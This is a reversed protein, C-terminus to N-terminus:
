IRVYLRSQSPIESLNRKLIAVIEESTSSKPFKVKKTPLSGTSAEIERAAALGIYCFVRSPHNGGRGRRQSSTSPSSSFINFLDQMNSTSDGPTDQTATDEIPDIDDTNSTPPPVPPHEARLSRLTDNIRRYREENSESM